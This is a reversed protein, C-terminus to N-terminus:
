KRQNRAAAMDVSEIGGDDLVQEEKAVDAGTVVDEGVDGHEATAGVAMMQHDGGPLTTAESEVAM